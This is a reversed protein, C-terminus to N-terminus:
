GCFRFTCGMVSRGDGFVIRCRVVEYMSTEYARLRDEADKCEVLIACGSVEQEPGEDLLARYKGGWEGLVGGLVTAPVLELGEEGDDDVGLM